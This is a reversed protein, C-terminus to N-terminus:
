KGTTLTKNLILGTTTEEATYGFNASKTLLSQYFEEKLFATGYISLRKAGAALAESELAMMVRRLGLMTSPGNLRILFVNVNYTGDVLQATAYTEFKGIWKPFGPQLNEVLLNGDLRELGAQTTPYTYTGTTHITAAPPAESPVPPVPIQELEPPTVFDTPISAGDTVPTAIPRDIPRIVGPDVWSGTLLGQLARGVVGAAGGVLTGQVFTGWTYKDRFVLYNGAGLATSSAAGTIAGGIAANGLTALVAASGGTAATFVGPNLTAGAIAGAGAGIAFAGVKQWVTTGHWHTALNIAGGIVAGAVICWPCNGDPDNNLVPNGWAYSYPSKGIQEPAEAMNDFVGWRGIAPDYQRAGFDYYNTGPQEEKGNYLFNDKAGSVYSILLGPDDSKYQLGYPYYNTVQVVLAVNESSGSPQVVVRTNGLKDKLEYNYFFSGTSQNKVATGEATQIFNLQGQSYQIGSIYNTTNTSGGATFTSTLLHGKGDYDYILTNGNSWRITTPQYFNNYAISSIGKNQDKTVNGNGDFAYENASQVVTGGGNDSFGYTTNGSLDDIENVQYGNYSYRLSDIRTIGGALKAWRGMTQLNGM